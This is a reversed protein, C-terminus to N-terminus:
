YKTLSTGGPARGGGREVGSRSLLSCKRSHLLDFRFAYISFCVLYQDVTESKSGCVIQCQYLFSLTLSAMFVPMASISIQLLNKNNNHLSELSM